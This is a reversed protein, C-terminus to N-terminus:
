CKAQLNFVENGICVKDSEMTNYMSDPQTFYSIDPVVVKLHDVKALFTEHHGEQIWTESEMM